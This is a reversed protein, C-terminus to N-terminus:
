PKEQTSTSPPTCLKSKLTERLLHGVEQLAQQKWQAPDSGLSKDISFSCRRLLLLLRNDDVQKLLEQLLLDKFQPILMVYRTMLTM